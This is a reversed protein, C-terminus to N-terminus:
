GGWPDSDVGEAILGTRKAAVKRGLPVARAYRKAMIIKETASMIDDEQRVILGKARHYVRFEEFWEVLHAAVKFRGTKSREEIELVAAERSYGGGEFTAHDALMNLKHRRYVAALEEATDSGQQRQHGDHPWAVPVGAAINRIAAANVLPLMGAQKFAHIIHIIDLDRDWCGLAAAFPHGIGFDIGWLKVWHMPIEIIQPETILSEDFTYIAGEGLAPIGKERADRLHGEYGAIRRKKEDETFHTVESLSLMVYARDKSGGELFRLVVRSRGRLPTFTTFLRGGNVLRTLIEDYVEPPPEEDNWGWHLSEGQFKRPGQEYSKFRALSTGGSVHKVFITNYADAIGRSMSKDILLDKPIMGTGFAEDVGPEGCLKRQQVDRVVESSEGCIWGRTPTNWRIGPWWEPYIGTLHCTVEFAGGETKGVQNGGMLLRERKEKGLSFFNMQKPYPKFFAAKNENKIAAAAELAELAQDVSIVPMKSPQSNKRLTAM